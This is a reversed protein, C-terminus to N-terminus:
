YSSSYLMDGNSVHKLSSTASEASEWVHDKDMRELSEICRRLTGVFSDRLYEVSRIMKAAVSKNIRGLVLERIMQTCYELDKPNVLEENPTLCVEKFELKEAEDVVSQSITLITIHIEERIEEQKRNASDMLALYLEEEKERAYELRRPTIIMDRAMDFATTIFLSLVRTHADHLVTTAALLHYQLVQRVFLLFCPFLSFDEILNSKPHTSELVTSAKKDSENSKEESEYSLYGADCLQEFLKPMTSSKVNAQSTASADAMAEDIDALAQDRASETMSETLQSLSKRNCKVFFITMDPALAKVQVM